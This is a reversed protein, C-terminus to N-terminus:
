KVILKYTLFGGVVILVNREFKNMTNKRNIRAVEADLNKIVFRQQDVIDSKVKLQEKRLDIENRQLDILRAATDIITKLQSVMDSYEDLKIFAVNVRQAQDLTILIVTDRDIVVRSPYTKQSYSQLATLMLIGSM